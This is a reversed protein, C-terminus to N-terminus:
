FTTMELFSVYSPTVSYFLAPFLICFPYLGRLVAAGAATLLSVPPFPKNILERGEQLDVAWFLAGSRMISPQPGGMHNSSVSRVVEPLAALARLWQAVEARLIM